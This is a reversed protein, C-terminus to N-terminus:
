SKAESGDCEGVRKADIRLRMKMGEGAGAPGGSSNLVMSYTNESYTGAMQVLQSMGQRECKMVADIKGNGMAFRDFRCAQDAGAFFDASPRKAQEATVCSTQVRDMGTMGKMKAAAEPPMGPISVDEVAAKSEWRGPRIFSNANAEAVKNAVESVSANELEVSPESNCGTLAVLALVCFHIHIRM